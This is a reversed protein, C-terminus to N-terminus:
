LEHEHVVSRREFLHAEAWDLAEAASEKRLLAVKSSASPHLAARETVSLQEAWFDRLTETSIGRAQRNRDKHALYERITRVNAIHLESREDLLAATQADIQASTKFIARM